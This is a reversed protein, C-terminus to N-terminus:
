GWTEYAVRTLIGRSADPSLSSERLANFVLQYTNVDQESDIFTTGELHEVAVADPLPVGHVKPYKFYVFAGTGIVQKGGLPLVRLEINPHESLEALHALQDRMVSPAAFGRILVSEDIVFLLELPPDRTLVRQRHLRGQVRREIAAAPKAFITPWLELLARTYDETQMLGPIVQPEWTQMAEAEREAEMIRAYGEPLDGELAELPDMQRSEEALAVLEARHLDAVEYLDMLENLDSNKVSALGNEIRSLKAESWGLRTVVQKGTLHARRRLRRLEDALRRQRLASSGFDSVRGAGEWETAEGTASINHSILLKPVASGLPFVAPLLKLRLKVRFKRLPAEKDNVRSSPCLLSGLSRHVPSDSERGEKRRLVPGNCHM